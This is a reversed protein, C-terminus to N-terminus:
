YSNCTHSYQYGIMNSILNFTFLSQIHCICASAKTCFVDTLYKSSVNHGTACTTNDNHYVHIDPQEAQKAHSM